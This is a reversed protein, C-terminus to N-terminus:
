CNSTKTNIQYKIIRWLALYKEYSKHPTYSYVCVGGWKLTCQRWISLAWWRGSHSKTKFSKIVPDVPMSWQRAFTMLFIQNGRFVTRSNKSTRISWKALPGIRVILRCCFFSLFFRERQRIHRHTDSRATKAPRTHTINAPPLKMQYQHHNILLSM